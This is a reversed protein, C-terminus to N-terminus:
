RKRPLESLVHKHIFSDTFSSFSKQDARLDQLTRIKYTGVCLIHKNESDQHKDLPLLWYNRPILKDLAIAMSVVGKNM